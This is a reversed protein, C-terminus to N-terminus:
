SFIRFVRTISSEELSNLVESESLTFYLCYSTLVYVNFEMAQTPAAVPQPTINRPQRLIQRTEIEAQLTERRAVSILQSIVFCDVKSQKRKRQM